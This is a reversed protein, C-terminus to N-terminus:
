SGLTNLLQYIHPWSSAAATENATPTGARSFFGGSGLSFEQPLPQNPTICGITHGAQGYVAGQINPRQHSRARVLMDRVAQASDIIEDKGGGTVWTKAAVAGVIGYGGGRSPL